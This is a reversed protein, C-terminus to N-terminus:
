KQILEDSKVFLFAVFGLAFLADLCLVGLIVPDAGPELAAPSLLGIVGLKGIVGAWLVPAYRLPNRAVQLYVIGFCFVFLGVIRADITAEPSLMGLAGILLNFVSAAWFFVKWGQGMAEGGVPAGVRGTNRADNM